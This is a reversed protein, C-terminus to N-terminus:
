AARWQARLRYCGGPSVLQCGIPAPQDGIDKKTKTQDAAQLDARLVSPAFVIGIADDPRFSSKVSSQRPTHAPLDAAVARLMEIRVTSRSNSNSSFQKRIDLFSALEM